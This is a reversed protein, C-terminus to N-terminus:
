HQAPAGGVGRRGSRAAGGLAVIGTVALLGGVVLRATGSRRCPPGDAWTSGDVLTRDTSGFASAVPAACESEVLTRSGDLYGVLGRDYPMFALALGGVLALLGLVGVVMRAVHRRGKPEDGPSVPGPVPAAAPRGVARTSRVPVGTTGTRNDTSSDSGDTSSDTGDTSSDTRIQDITM